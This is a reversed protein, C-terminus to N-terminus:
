NTLYNFKNKKILSVSFFHWASLQQDAKDISVIDILIEKSRWTRKCIISILFDKGNLSLLNRFEFALSLNIFVSDPRGFTYVFSAIFSM